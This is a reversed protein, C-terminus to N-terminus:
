IKLNKVTYRFLIFTNEFKSSVPILLQLKYNFLGCALTEEAEFTSVQNM